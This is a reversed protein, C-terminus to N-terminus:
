LQAIRGALLIAGSSKETIMFHFPEDFKLYHDTGDSFGSAGTHYTISAGEAGAENLSFCNRQAIRNFAEQPTSFLSSQDIKSVGTLGMRELTKNVDLQKSSINFKPLYLNFPSAFRIDENYMKELLGHERIAGPEFEPNSLAFQAEFNGFGISKKLTLAIYTGPYTHSCYVTGYYEQGFKHMFEIESDHEAGHFIGKETNKADFPDTWAGSFLISNILIYLADDPLRDFIMPIKGQTADKVWSNIENVTFLEDDFPRAFSQGKFTQELINSFTPNLTYQNNYWLSNLLSMSVGADIQPLTSILKESLSNISALDSSGLTSLIEERLADSSCNALMSLSIAASLPSCVVNETPEAQELSSKIFEFQFPLIDESVKKENATLGLTIVPPQPQPVEPEPVEPVEPVPEPVQQPEDESCAVALLGAFIFALYHKKKM